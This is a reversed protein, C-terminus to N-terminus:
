REPQPRAPETLTQTGPKLTRRAGSPLVATAAVGKPVTATLRFALSQLRKM